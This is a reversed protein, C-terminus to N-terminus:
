KAMNKCEEVYDFYQQFEQPKTDRQRLIALEDNLSYKERILSEIKEEYTRTDQIEEDPVEVEQPLWKGNIEIIKVEKM